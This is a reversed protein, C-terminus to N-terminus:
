KKVYHKEFKEEYKGKLLRQKQANLKRIGGRKNHLQQLLKHLQQQPQASYIAVVKEHGTFTRDVKLKLNFVDRVRHKVEDAGQPYLFQVTGNQTINYLTLYPYTNGTTSFSVHEGGIRSLALNLQKQNAAVKGASAFMPQESNFANRPSFQPTQGKSHHQVAIKVYTALEKRSIRGDDNKDAKGRMGNAFAWSLAGRRVGNIDVESV